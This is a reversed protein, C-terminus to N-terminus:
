YNHQRFCYRCLPYAVSSDNYNGCTYCYREKYSYNKYFNWVACCSDCLVWSPKFKYGRVGKVDKLLIKNRCRICYGNKPINIQDVLCTSSRISQEIERMLKLYESPSQQRNVQFGVNYNDNKSYHEFNANTYLAAYDTLIIQAPQYNTLFIATNEIKTTITDLSKQSYSRCIFVIPVSSRKLFYLLYDNITLRPLMFFLHHCPENFFDRITHYLQQPPIFQALTFDKGTIGM